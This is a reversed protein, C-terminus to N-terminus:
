SKPKKGTISKGVATKAPTVTKRQNRRKSKELATIDKLGDKLLYFSIYGQGDYVPVAHVRKDTFEKQKILVQKHNPVMVRVSADTEGTMTAASKNTTEVVMYGKHVAKARVATKTTSDAQALMDPAVTTLYKNSLEDVSIDGQIRSRSYRGEQFLGPLSVILARALRRDSAVLSADNRYNGTPIHLWYLIQQSLIRRLLPLFIIDTDKLDPTNKGRKLIVGLGKRVRKGVDYRNNLLDETMDQYVDSQAIKHVIKRVITGLPLDSVIPEENFGDREGNWQALLTSPNGLKYQTSYSVPAKKTRGKPKEKVAFVADIVRQFPRDVRDSQPISLYYSRLKQAIETLTLAYTDSKKTSFVVDYLFSRETKLLGIVGEITQTFTQKAVRGTQPDPLSFNAEFASQTSAEDYVREIGTMKMKEAMGLLRSYVASYLENDRHEAWGSILGCHFAARQFREQLDGGLQQEHSDFLLGAAKRSVELHFAHESRQHQPALTDFAKATIRFDMGKSLVGPEITM